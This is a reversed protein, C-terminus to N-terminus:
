FVSECFGLAGQLYIEGLGVHAMKKLFYAAHVVRLVLHFNRRRHYVTLSNVTYKFCFLGATSGSSIACHQMVFIMTPQILRWPLVEFDRLTVSYLITRHSIHPPFRSPSLQKKIIDQTTVTPGRGPSRHTSPLSLKVVNAGGAGVPLDHCTNLRHRNAASITNWWFQYTAIWDQITSWKCEVNVLNVLSM